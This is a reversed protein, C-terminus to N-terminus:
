NNIESRQKNLQYQNLSEISGALISVADDIILEVIDDKFEPDVDQGSTGNEHECGGFDIEKPKRYYVLYAKTVNFEGNTYIKFKNGVITHFTEEMEFAPQMAYDQLYDNSNAEERLTSKIFRGSCEKTRCNLDLKNFYLYDTPLLESKYYKDFMETNLPIPDSLLIQLDDVKIRTEEAQEKFQNSGHFQRRVWELQAKNFAERIQWCEINDYDSSDLKNLRERIKIWVLSNQM